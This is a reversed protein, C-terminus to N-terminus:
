KGRGQSMKWQRYDDEAAKFQAKTMSNKHLFYNLQLGDVAKQAKSDIPEISCNIQCQIAPKASTDWIFKVIHKGYGAFAIIAAAAIHWAELKKPLLQMAM